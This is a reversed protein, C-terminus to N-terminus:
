LEGSEDQEGERAPPDSYEVRGGSVQMIDGCNLCTVKMPEETQRAYGDMLKLVWDAVLHAKYGGKEEVYKAPGPYKEFKEARLAADREKITAM